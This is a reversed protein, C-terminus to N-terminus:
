VESENYIVDNRGKGNGKYKVFVVRDSEQHKGKKSSSQRSAIALQNPSGDDREIVLTNCNSDNLFKKLEENQDDTPEFGDVGFYENIANSILENSGKGDM